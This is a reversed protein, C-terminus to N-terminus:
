DGRQAAEDGEGPFPLDDLGDLVELTPVFFLSGTVARSVDLIQDHNGAPKGIFMNHLMAETIAPNGAYGIFYTGFEASRVSGFPMNDRLIDHEVGDDDVITTLAVHSNSAKQSDPIEVDNLKYRGIAREQAEVSLAQWAELDHLYKQVIVYSAGAYHPDRESSVLAATRAADGLPNATGDVFGLLDRNDYYAFGHTEDVVDVHAGLQETFLRAFEFCPGIDAARLHLLVDGPTSPATHTAGQIRALPHLDRPRPVGTVMRDWLDSGIGVVVLLDTAPTRFGVSKALSSAGALAGRVVRESGAPVTMVLFLGARAPDAVVTQTPM